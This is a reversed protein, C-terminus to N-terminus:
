RTSEVDSVTKLKKKPKSEIVPIGKLKRELAAVKKSTISYYESFVTKFNNYKTEFARILKEYVASQSKSLVTYNKIEENLKRKIETNDNHLNYMQKLYKIM